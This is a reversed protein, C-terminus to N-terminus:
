ALAVADVALHASLTREPPLTFVVTTGVGRASEITMEGGHLAVLRQALPLGLGTGGHVRALVNDLQGFPQLALPIQEPDMGIGTDAVAVAVGGEATPRASVTIQGEATTFKIANSVLNLLVQELRQRDGRLGLGTPMFELDIGAAAARDATMRRCTEFVAAIPVPEDHLEFHGAEVKSLDLLDNIIRLLHHGAGNIDAAYDRYRAEIPGFLAQSLVESFGIIANLPTRLEHSMNALFESKTRNAIEAQDRACTLEREIKRRVADERQLKEALSRFRDSRLRTSVLYLCLFSTLVLGATLEFWGSGALKEALLQPAARVIVTCDRGAFRFSSGWYPEILAAAEDAPGSRPFDPAAPHRYILQRGRSSADDIVNLEVGRPVPNFGAIVADFAASLSLRFTLIGVPGTGNSGAASGHVPVYLLSGEGGSVLHLPPTAQAKGTAIAERLADRSADAGLDLGIPAVSREPEIYRIPYYDPRRAAAALSGDPMLERIRYDANREVRAAAEFANRDRGLVHPAWSVNQFGSQLVGSALFVNRAYARFQEADVQAYPFATAFGEITGEYRSLVEQLERARSEAEFTFEASLRDQATNRAHDFLLASVVVGICAVLAAPWHRYIGIWAM